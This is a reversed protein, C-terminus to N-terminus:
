FGEKELRELAVWFGQGGNEHGQWIEPLWTAEPCHQKMKEAVVAWDVDGEHIQLGEGDVGLSDALHLHATYPLVKDLFRSLSTKSHNCELASHSVDLCVRMGTEECFEVIWDGDLFLNHFQQGGFHWPFPPMTQPLIEVESDNLEALSKKLLETRERIDRRSLPADDSFGGVNTVLGIRENANKFFPKIAKVVEITKRMEAISHLRYEEDSSTLDLTHDGYFLEPAHVVLHSDIKDKFYDKHNLELDKYSLHFELMPCKVVSYLKVYDHHRVPIGWKSWFSYDSRPKVIGELIDDPYFAEGKKISRKLPKQLLEALYNPQLGRGPSKIVVDGETIYEGAEKDCAAYISKALTVRNMMEGQTITRESDSGIAEFVQSVGKSLMAFESPMLSVKHDNGELTRDTTFHKEIISAGLAVAAIGVNVDREHGSYGIPCDGLDALRPLYSLNVDKFPAPYTSNCHLLIYQAGCSKLVKVTELIEDERAMGTSCILPKGTKAVYRILRHNTLDASAIKYAPVGVTELLDVSKEDWPTCLPVLGVSKAYELAKILDDDRLQFRKLLDLTYQAGLNESADDIDGYLEDMNRLQFKACHAGTEKALDILEIANELSGNHNNGIEAIMFPSHGEGIEFDAIKVTRSNRRHLVGIIKKHEDVVPLVEYQKYSDVDFVLENKVMHFAPDFNMVDSLPRNLDIEETTLMWRNLDGLSFTGGLKGHGDICIVTRHKHDNLFALGDRIRSEQSVCWDHIRGSFIM